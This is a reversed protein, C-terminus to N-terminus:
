STEVVRFWGPLTVQGRDGVFPGLADHVAKEVAPPDSHRLALTTAGASLFAAVAAPVDPFVVTADLTNDRRPRLGVAALVEDLTGPASLAFMGSRKLTPLLQAPLLAMLPAFVQPIASEALRTPIVVWVAGRSVRRAEGLARAHDEAFQFTSFGTVLDFSGDPWPLAEFDGVRLDARPCRGAAIEILEAAADIGAVDAGRAAALQVFRGAGCGCDLVTTGAGVNAAHLVHQYLPTGWGQSGEWTDAWTAARAGFLPGWRTGSGQRNQQQMPGVNRELAGVHM